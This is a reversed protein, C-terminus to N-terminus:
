HSKMHNILSGKRMTKSCITCQVKYHQLLETKIHFTDDCDACKERPPYHKLAHQQIGHRQRSSYGCGEHICAFGEGAIKWESEWSGKQPRASEPLQPLPPKKIKTRKECVVKPQPLSDPQVVCPECLIPTDDQQSLKGIKNISESLLDLDGIVGSATLQIKQLSSLTSRTNTKRPSLPPSYKM